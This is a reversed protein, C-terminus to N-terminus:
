RRALEPFVFTDEAVLQAGKLLKLSFYARDDPRLLHQSSRANLRVLRDPLDLLGSYSASAEGSRGEVRSKLVFRYRGARPAQVWPTITLLGNHFQPELFAGGQEDAYATNFLGILLAALFPILKTM